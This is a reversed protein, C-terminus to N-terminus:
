RLEGMTHVLGPSDATGVHLSRNVAIPSQAALMLSPPLSASLGQGKM